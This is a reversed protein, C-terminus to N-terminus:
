VFDWNAGPHNEDVYAQVLDNWSKAKSSVSSIEVGRLDIYDSWIDIRVVNKSDQTNSTLEM